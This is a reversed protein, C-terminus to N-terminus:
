EAATRLVKLPDRSVRLAAVSAFPFPIERLSDLDLIGDSDNLSRVRLVEGRRLRGCALRRRRGPPFPETLAWRAPGSAERFPRGYQGYWGTSGAPTAVLLGSGKHEEEAGRGLRLIHRSMHKRQREGLFVESTALGVPRGDLSAELRPWEEISWRGSRLCAAAAQLSTEDIRLLGGHSRLRDANVGLLPAQRLFHSVYIFHNDGGLAIVLSSADLGARDAMERAALRSQPLLALLRSRVELQREHSEFIADGRERYWTKLRRPTWGLRRLDYELKTEKPIIM